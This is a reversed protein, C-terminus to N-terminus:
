AHSSNEAVKERKRERETVKVKTKEKRNKVKKWMTTQRSTNESSTQPTTISPSSPPIYTSIPIHIKCRKELWGLSSLSYLILPHPKNLTSHVTYDKFSRRSRRVNKFINLFSGNIHLLLIQRISLSRQSRTIVLLTDWRGVNTYSFIFLPTNKSHYM